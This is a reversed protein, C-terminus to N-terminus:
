PTQLSAFIRRRTPDRLLIYLAAAVLDADHDRRLRTVLAPTPGEGGALGESVKALLEGIAAGGAALRRWAELRRDREARTEM